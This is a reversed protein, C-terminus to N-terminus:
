GRWGNPCARRWRRWGPRTGGAGLANSLILEDVEAPQIGADALAAGIVPAALDHLALAAFAGGRPIVASRRAAILRPQM